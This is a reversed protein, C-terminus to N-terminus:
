DAKRKAFAAGVLSIVLGIVMYQIFVAGTFMNATYIENMAEEFESESLQFMPLVQPFQELAVMTEEKLQPIFNLNLWNLYIFVFACGIIIACLFLRFMYRFAQGYTFQNDNVRKRCDIAMKVAAIPIIVKLAFALLEFWFGSFSHFVFELIFLAGLMLGFYMAHLFCDQKM